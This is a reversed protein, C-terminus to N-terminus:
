KNPIPIHSGYPNGFGPRYRYYYDYFHKEPPDSRYSHTPREMIRVDEGTLSNNYLFGPADTPQKLRYGM